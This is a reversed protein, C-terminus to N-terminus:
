DQFPVEPLYGPKSFLKKGDLSITQYNGLKTDKTWYFYTLTTHLWKICLRTERYYIGKGFPPLQLSAVPLLSALPHTFSAQHPLMNRHSNLRSLLTLVPIPSRPPELDGSLVALWEQAIINTNESTTPQSAQRWIHKPSNSLLGLLPQIILRSILSEQNFQLSWKPVLFRLLDRPGQAM